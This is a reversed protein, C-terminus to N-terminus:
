ANARALERHYRQPVKRGNDFEEPLEGNAIYAYERYKEGDADDGVRLLLAVRESSLIPLLDSLKDSFEVDTIDDHEDVLESTWEYYTKM